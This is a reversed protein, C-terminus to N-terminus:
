AAAELKEIAELFEQNSWLSAITEDYKMRYHIADLEIQTIAWHGLSADVVYDFLDVARDTTTNYM